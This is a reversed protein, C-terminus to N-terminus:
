YVKNNMLKKGDAWKELGGFYIIGVFSPKFKYSRKTKWM